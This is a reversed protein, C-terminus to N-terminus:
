PYIVTTASALIEAIRLMNGIEGVAIKDKVGYYDVCTGCLVVKVGKAALQSLAEASDNGGLACKVGSNYAVIYEATRAEMAALTNLYSRLLLAGLERDGDGMVDSKLVMVRCVGKDEQQGSSCTEPVKGPNVGTNDFSLVRCGNGETVVPAIDLESLYNVINICAMENDTYVEIREGPASEKIAARTMILPQPCLRGRADVIRAM